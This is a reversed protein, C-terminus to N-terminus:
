RAMCTLELIVSFSQRLFTLLLLQPIVSTESKWMWLCLCASLCLCLSVCLSVSIRFACYCQFIGPDKYFSFM